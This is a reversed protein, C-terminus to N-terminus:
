NQAYIVTSLGMQDSAIKAKTSFEGYGGVIISPCCRGYMGRGSYNYGVEFNQAEADKVFKQQNKSLKYDIEM